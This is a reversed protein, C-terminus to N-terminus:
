YPETVALAGTRKLKRKEKRNKLHKINERESKRPTDRKDVL